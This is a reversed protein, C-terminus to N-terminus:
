GGILELKRRKLEKGTKGDLTVEFIQEKTPDYYSIIWVKEGKEEVKYIETKIGERKPYGQDLKIQHKNCYKIVDLWGFDYGEDTNTEKIFNGEQDFEYIFGIPYGNKLSIGKQKINGNNYYKKSIMFYSNNPYEKRIYGYSQSVEEVYKQKNIAIRKRSISDVEKNFLEIDFSEFEKTIQPIILEQEVIQNHQAKCNTLLLLLVIYQLTTKM